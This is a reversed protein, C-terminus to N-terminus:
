AWKVGVDLTTNMIWIGAVMNKRMNTINKLIRFKKFLNGIHPLNKSAEYEPAFTTCIKPKEIFM